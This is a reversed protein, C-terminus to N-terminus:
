HNRLLIATRFAHWKLGKKVSVTQLFKTSLWGLILWTFNWCFSKFTESLFENSFKEKCKSNLTVKPGRPRHMKSMMFMWQIVQLLVDLFYKECLINTKIILKVLYLYSCTVNRIIQKMKRWSADAMCCWRILLCEM